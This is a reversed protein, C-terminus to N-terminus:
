SSPGSYAVRAVKVRNADSVQTWSVYVTNGVSHISPFGSRRSALIPAVEVTDIFEAEASYRSLMVQASSGRLDLWSTIIEGNDLLTVDVRGLTDAGAVRTPATFHEGDDRSVALQVVPLDDLLTFWVVAVTNERAAVAPGNVPCGAVQWGDDHVAQPKTWQGDVRRVIAIDRIDGPSRNRYVVIPGRNTMAAATQCCDCVRSDLEWEDLREGTSAFEAGRLTMPGPEPESKTRRGDLWTILTRHPGSPAMAVFGHEAQIGDTNILTGDGWRQRSPDYFSAVVDYDYSSSGSRRLWHALRADGHVALRPFDAWNVFWDTGKSIIAPDSWTSGDWSAFAFEAVGDRETVWSLYVTGTDDSTVRSLHSHAPAPSVLQEPTVARTDPEGAAISGTLGTVGLMASAICQLLVKTAKM